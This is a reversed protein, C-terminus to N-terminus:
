WRPTGPSTSTRCGLLHAAGGGIIQQHMDGTVMQEIAVRGTLVQPYTDYVGNETWLQATGAPSGSDVAPGYSAVIQLLELRDEADLMRRELEQLRIRLAEAETPEANPQRTPTEM